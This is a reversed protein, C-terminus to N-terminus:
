GEMTTDKGLLEKPVGVAATKNEKTSVIFEGHLADTASETQLAFPRTVEGHVIERDRGDHAGPRAKHGARDHQIQLVAFM